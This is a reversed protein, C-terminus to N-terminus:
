ALLTRFVPRYRRALRRSPPRVPAPPQPQPAAPSAACAQAASMEPAPPTQAPPPPEPRDFLAQPFDAGAKIGLMRCLPRLLRAAQPAAALLAALEPDRLLHCVQSRLPLISPALRALWGFGQPLCPPRLRQVLPVVRVRGTARTVVMVRGARARAALATLRVALRHLYPWVLWAVAVATRNRAAHAAIADRLGQVIM